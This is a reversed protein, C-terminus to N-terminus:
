QIKINDLIYKSILKAKYDAGIETNHRGDNWYKAEYPMYKNLDYFYVSNQNAVKKISNNHEIVGNKFWEANSMDLPIETYHPYTVLLVKIGRDKAILCLTNLNREFYQPTNEKMRKAWLEQDKLWYPYYIKSQDKHTYHDVGWGGMKFILRMLVSKTILSSKPTQWYQRTGIYDACYEKSDALARDHIDNAGLNVIVMDPKLDIVKFYFWLLINTSDFGSVGANIVEWRKPQADANLYYDLRAPWTNNPNSIATDYTSSEGLAVIRIVNEKKQLSVEKGRFGLSNHYNIKNNSRYNKTLQYETFPNGEYIGKLGHEDIRGVLNLIKESAFHKLYIISSFELICFIVFVSCFMLIIERYFKAIKEAILSSKIFSFLSATLLTLYILILGINIQHRAKNIFFFYKFLKLLIVGFILCSILTIFFELFNNDNKSTDNKM